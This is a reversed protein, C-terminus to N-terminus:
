DRLTALALRRILAAVDQPRRKGRALADFTDSRPGALAM